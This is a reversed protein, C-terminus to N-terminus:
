GIPQIQSFVSDRAFTMAHCMVDGSGPCRRTLACQNPSFERLKINFLQGYRAVCDGNIVHGETLAQPRLKRIAVPV